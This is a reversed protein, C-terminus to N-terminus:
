KLRDLVKKKASAFEEDTLIGKKHLDDLKVLDDYNSDNPNSVAHPQSPAAAQVAAAPQNATAAALEPDGPPLAKFTVTTSSMSGFVYLSKDEEASVLKFQKGEKACFKTAAEIGAAKLKETNRTFMNTASVTVSYAGNGLPQISSVKQARALPASLVLCVLLLLYGPYKNM